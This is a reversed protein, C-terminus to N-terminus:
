MIAFFSTRLNSLKQEFEQNIKATAKDLNDLKSNVFELKKSLM